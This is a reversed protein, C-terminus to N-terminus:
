PRGAPSKHSARIPGAGGGGGCPRPPRGGVATRVADAVSQRLQRRRAGLHICMAALSVGVDTWVLLLPCCSHVARVSSGRRPQPVQSAAASSAGAPVAPGPRIHCSVCCGGAAVAPDDPPAQRCWAAPAVAWHVSVAAVIRLGRGSEQFGAARRVKMHPVQSGDAGQDHVHMVAGGVGTAVIVTVVGGAAGSRSHKVANTFLESVALQPDGPACDAAATLAGVWRRVEPVSLIRGPLVRAALTVAAPPAPTPASTMM